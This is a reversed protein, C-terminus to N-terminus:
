IHILSLEHLLLLPLAVTEPPMTVPTVAPVSVIFYITLSTHPASVENTTIVMLGNGLAPVIVPEEVTQTLETIVNVSAIESPIHLALLGITVIEPPIIVPTVVPISVMLYINVLAHPTSVAVFIIVTLGKGIAPLIVPVPVTQSPAVVENLPEVVPPVQLETEVPIAVM